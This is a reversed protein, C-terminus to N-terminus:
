LYLLVSEGVLLSVLTSFLKIRELQLFPNHLIYLPRTRVKDFEDAPFEEAFKKALEELEFTLKVKLQKQSLCQECYM